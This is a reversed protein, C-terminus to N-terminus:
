TNKFTQCYKQLPDNLQLLAPMVEFSKFTMGVSFFSTM